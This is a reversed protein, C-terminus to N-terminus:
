IKHFQRSRVTTEHNATQPKAISFVLTDFNFLPVEKQARTLLAVPVKTWFKITNLLRLDLVESVM